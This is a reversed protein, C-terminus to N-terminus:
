KDYIAVLYQQETKWFKHDGVMFGPTWMGKAILVRDGVKCLTVDPGVDTVYGWRDKNGSETTTPPIYILKSTSNENFLGDVTVTDEFQFVISDTLCKIM